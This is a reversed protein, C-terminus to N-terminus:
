LDEVSCKGIVSLDYPPMSKTFEKRVAFPRCVYVKAVQVNYKFLTYQYRVMNYNMVEFHFYRKYWWLFKNPTEEDLSPDCNGQNIKGKPPM